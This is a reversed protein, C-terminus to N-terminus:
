PLTLTVSADSGSRLDVPASARTWHLSQAPAARRWSRVSVAYLAAGGLAAANTGAPLAIAVTGGVGILASVDQTSVIGGVDAVVLEAADAQQTSGGSLHVALTASALGAKRAANPAAISVSSGGPAAVVEAASPDDYRTGRTIVSFSDAGELPTVDSFSLVTTASYTAVRLPGSPLAFPQALMGTFPDANTSAIEHALEGPGALTQGFVLQASRPAVAQSLSVQADGLPSLVPVMPAPHTPDAPDAGLQTPNAALLDAASAPVARVLMTRMNRGRIVVDFLGNPSVPLPYLAFVAFSDGLAVPTARVSVTAAGDASPLQASAVVDSICSSSASATCFLSKDMVGVIAGTSALDYARLDPRLTTRDIGDDATFRVLSRALDWQLTIDTATGAGVVIPGNVRLGLGADAFELPWSGDSRDVQANYSLKLTKASDALVDDHRLVFLRLQAYSAAPLTRGTLVSAVVGNTVSALDITIPASLRLVQWSADSPSWAHDAETHLAVANVTVWVHDVGPHASGALGLSLAGSQAGPAPTVGGDSSGGGGCAVLAACVLALLFTRM